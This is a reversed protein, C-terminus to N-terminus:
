CLILDLESASPEETRQRTDTGKYKKLGDPNKDKDHKSFNWGVATDCPITLTRGGELPVPVVLLKQLQPIIEDELHAPYQVLVADHVQLLLECLGSQWVNLMGRNLIDGVSGQPDFAIAERQTAAENRRGFFWRRRGSLSTINGMELLTRKVHEHWMPIEPFGSFYGHQFEKVVPVPLHSHRAMTPPKGDYNSGHGLKKSLDRYTLHRYAIGDAIERDAKPDGCWPLDRRAMKTVTTHLDGSECASLYTDRRFLNWCIAGVLRSEAQELDIYAFKMGPDAVLISRLSDEINQLNTGTGFDSVNSSFRGTETGAINYSTRMRGDPDIATRLVGIKKGLDRLVLLHSLIPTAHFYDFLSELADRNATVSGKHKREPLRMVTYLLEKIQHPSAWNFEGKATKPNRFDAPMSRYGVGDCVLRALNYAVVDVQEEFQKLVRARRRQDVRVGRLKMAMVPGQLSLAHRYVGLTTPDLQPRITGLIESTLCCDLANYIWHRSEPDLAETTEPTLDGTQIIRM